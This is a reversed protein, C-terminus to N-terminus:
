PMSERPARHCGPLQASLYELEDQNGTRRRLDSVIRLALPDCGVSALHERLLDTARSVNGAAVTRVVEIHHREWGMPRGGTPSPPAETIAALDAAALGFGPDAMVAHRLAKVIVSADAAQQAQRYFDAAQFNTTVVRGHDEVAPGASASQGRRTNTREPDRRM